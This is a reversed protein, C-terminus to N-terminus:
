KYKQYDRIYDSKLLVKIPIKSHHEKIFEGMLNHLSRESDERKKLQEQSPFIGDIIDQWTFKMNPPAM